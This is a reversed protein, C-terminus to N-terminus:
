RRERGSGGGGALADLGGVDSPLRTAESRRSRTDHLLSSLGEQEEEIGHRFRGQGTRIGFGGTFHLSGIESARLADPVRAGFDRWGGGSSTRVAWNMM